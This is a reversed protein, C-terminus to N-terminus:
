SPLPAPPGRPHRVSVGSPAADIDAGAVIRRVTGSPTAISADAAPACNPGCGSACGAACVACDAHGPATPKEPAGPAPVRYTGDAGCIVLWGEDAQASEARMWGAGPLILALCILARLSQLLTSSWRM